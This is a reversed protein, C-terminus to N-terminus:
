SDVGYSMGFYYNYDDIVKMLFEKVISNLVIFEFIEDLIDGIM